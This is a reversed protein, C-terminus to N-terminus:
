ITPPKHFLYYTQKDRKHFTTFHTFYTQLHITIEIFVQFKINNIFDYRRSDTIERGEMECSSSM